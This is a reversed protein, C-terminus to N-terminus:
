NAGYIYVTGTIDPTGPSSYLTISTVVATNTIIRTNFSYKQCQTATWSGGDYTSGNEIIKNAVIGSNYIKISGKMYNLGYCIPFASGNVSSVIESVSSCNIDYWIFLHKYSTSIGSITYTNISPITVTNLLTLGLGGSPTPLNLITNSNYDITKHTLINSSSATIYNSLSTNITTINSANNSYGTNLNAVDANHATKTEYNSLSTNITTISLGNNSIGTNLNSVDANHATKTEYNSLSTYVATLDADTLYTTTDGLFYMSSIGLGSNFDNVLYSM